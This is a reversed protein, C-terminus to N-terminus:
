SKPVTRFQANVAVGSKWAKERISELEDGQGLDVALTILEKVGWEHKLYPICLLIWEAQIQWYLKQLV